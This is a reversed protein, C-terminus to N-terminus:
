WFIVRRIIFWYVQMIPNVLYKLLPNNVEQSNIDGVFLDVIDRDKVKRIKFQITIRRSLISPLHFIIWLWGNVKEKFWGNKISFFIIGLEMFLLMPLILLITLLRYNQLLVIFRNRDMYYFKYKAKSYSYKHYVVSLPDLVIRYGALRLRWGLDVDEHYMFLRDDFLDTKDLASMKILVAAGSAYPIDFYDTVGLNDKVKYYNCFAFGLYHISNGFSNIRDTQPHLLLKPQVAAIKANKDAIKTMHSLWNREVITDQNLLVLYDSNNKQALFYGQNNASAFGINKRNAIIKIEPFKERVYGVTSDTSNNDIVIIKVLNTPYDQHKLSNLCDPLYHRANHTVIVITIKKNM